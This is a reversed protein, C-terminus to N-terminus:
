IPRTTGKFNLTDFVQIIFYEVENYTMNFEKELVPWIKNSIFTRGHSWDEFLWEEKANLYTIKNPFTNCSIEISYDGTYLDNILERFREEKTKM